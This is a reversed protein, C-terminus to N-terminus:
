TKFFYCVYLLFNIQDHVTSHDFYNFVVSKGLILEKDKQTLIDLICSIM